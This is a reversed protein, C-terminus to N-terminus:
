SKGSVSRLGHIKCYSNDLEVMKFQVGSACGCTRPNCTYIGGKSVIAQKIAMICAGSAVRFRWFAWQVLRGLMSLTTVVECRSTGQVVFVHWATSTALHATWLYRLERTISRLETKTMGSIWHGCCAVVLVHQQTPTQQTALASWEAPHMTIIPYHHQAGAAPM